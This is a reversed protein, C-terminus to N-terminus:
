WLTVLFHKSSGRGVFAYTWNPLGRNMELRQGNGVCCVLNLCLVDAVLVVRLAFSHIKHSQRVQPVNLTNLRLGQCALPHQLHKVIAEGVGDVLIQAVSSKLGAAPRPIQHAHDHELLLVGLVFCALCMYVEMDCEPSIIGEAKNRVLTRQLLPVIDEAM